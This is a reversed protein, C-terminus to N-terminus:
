KVYIDKGHPIIVIELGELIIKVTEKPIFEKIDADPFMKFFVERDLEELCEPTTKYVLMMGSRYDVDQGSWDISDILAFFGVIGQIRKFDIKAVEDKKSM